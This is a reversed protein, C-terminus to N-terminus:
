LLILANMEYTVEKNKYKAKMFAPMLNLQYALM